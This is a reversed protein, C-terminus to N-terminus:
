SFILCLVCGLNCLTVDLLRSSFNGTIVPKFSVALGVLQRTVDFLNAFTEPIGDLFLRLVARHDHVALQRCLSRGNWIQDKDIIGRM